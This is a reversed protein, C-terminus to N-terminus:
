GCHRRELAEECAADHIRQLLAQEAPRRQPVQVLELARLPKRALRDPPQLAVLEHSQQAYRELVRRPMCCPDPPDAEVCREAFAREREAIERAKRRHRAGICALVGRCDAPGPYRAAREAVVGAPRAALREDEVEPAPPLRGVRRASDASAPPPANIDAVSLSVKPPRRDFQVPCVPDLREAVPQEVLQEEVGELHGRGPHGLVDVCQVREPRARQESVGAADRQECRMRPVGSAAEVERAQLQDARGALREVRVLALQDLFREANRDRVLVAGPVCPKEGVLRRRALHQRHALAVNELHEVGCALRDRRALRPLRHDGPQV